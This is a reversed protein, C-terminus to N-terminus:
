TPLPVALLLMSIINDETLGFQKARRDAYFVALLFGAAIIAGYWHFSLGFVSATVPPNIFVGLNPFSIPIQM